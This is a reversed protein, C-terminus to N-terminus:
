RGTKFPVLSSAHQYPDSPAQTADFVALVQAVSLTGTERELRFYHHLWTAYDPRPAVADLAALDDYYLILVAQETLGSAGIAVIAAADVQELYAPFREKNSQEIQESTM